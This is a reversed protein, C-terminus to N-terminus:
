KLRKEKFSPEVFSPTNHFKYKARNIFDSVRDNFSDHRTKSVGVITPSRIKRGARDIYETFLGNVSEAISSKDVIHSMTPVRNESGHIPLIAPKTQPTLHPANLKPSVKSTQNSSKKGLGNSIPESQRFIIPVVQDGDRKNKISQKSVQTHRDRVSVTPSVFRIARFSSTGHIVRIIKQCVTKDEQKLNPHRNKDM